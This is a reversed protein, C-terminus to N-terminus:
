VILFVSDKYIIEKVEYQDVQNNSNWYNCCAWAIIGAETIFAESIDDTLGGDKSVYQNRFSEGRYVIIYQKKNTKIM